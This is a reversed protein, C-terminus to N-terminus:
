SLSHSGLKGKSPIDRHREMEELWDSLPFVSHIQDDCNTAVMVLQQLVLYRWLSASISGLQHIGCGLDTYVLGGDVLLVKIAVLVNRRGAVALELTFEPKRRRSRKPENLHNATITTITTARVEDRRTTAMLFDDRRLKATPFDDLTLM